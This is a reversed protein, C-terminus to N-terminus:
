LPPAHGIWNLKVYVAVLMLASLLMGAAHIAAGRDRWGPLDETPGLLRWLRWALLPVCALVVHAALSLVLLRVPNGIMMHTEFSTGPAFGLWLAFPVALAACALVAASGMRRRWLGALLGTAALVTAPWWVSRLIVPNDLGRVHDFVQDIERLQVQGTQQDRVFASVQGPRVPGEEPVYADPGHTRQRRGDILIVGDPALTVRHIAALYMVLWPADRPRQSLWYDGVLVEPKLPTSAVGAVPRPPPRVYDGALARLLGARSDFGTPVATGAFKGIGLAGLWEDEPRATPSADAQITFWGVGLSPLLLLRTNFGPAGGKELTALGNWERHLYALGQADLAPQNAVRDHLLARAGGGGLLLAQASADGALAALQWRLFRGMDPLTTYLSGSARLIPHSLPNISPDSLDYPEGNPFRGFPLVMREPPVAPHGIFTSTMGLPRFVLSQLAADLEQGMLDEILLGAVGYGANSYMVGAGAPHVAPPLVRAVADVSLLSNLPGAAAFRYALPDLGARHMLLDRVSVDRDGVRLLQVRRLYRNAADDLSSVRGQRVLELVAIATFVKTVSQVRFVSSGADFARPPSAREAGYGRWAIEGGRTAVVVGAASFRGQSLPEPYYRDAWELVRAAVASAGEEHLPSQAQLSTPLVVAALAVWAQLVRSQWFARM